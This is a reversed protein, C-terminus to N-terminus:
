TASRPRSWPEPHLAAILARTAHDDLPGLQMRNVTALRGWESLTARLPHNRYLDDSRYSAVVVRAPRAPPHVPVDAAGADVPGGLARGRHRSAAAGRRALGALAGSVAEFLAAPETPEEQEAAEAMLRHAPLLRAIAPSTELLAKALGSQEAALRGFAESFPLYPLASDGFDLCHGLLVRWGAQQARSSLEAILRSKGVGADGGLLVHGGAEHESGLGLLEALRQMEEARGVLPTVLTEPRVDAIM